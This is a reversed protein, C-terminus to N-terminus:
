LIMISMSWLEEVMHMADIFHTSCLDCYANMCERGLKTM